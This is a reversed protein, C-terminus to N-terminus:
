DSHRGLAKWDKEFRVLLYEQIEDFTEIKMMSQNGSCSCDVTFLDPNKTHIPCLDITTIWGYKEGNLRIM